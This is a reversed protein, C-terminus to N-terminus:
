VCVSGEVCVRMCVCEEVGEVCVMWVGGGCVGEYVGSGACVGEYVCGGCVDEM